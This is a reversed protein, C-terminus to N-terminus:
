LDEGIKPFGYREIADRIDQMGPSLSAAEPAAAV